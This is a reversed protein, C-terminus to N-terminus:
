EVAAADSQSDVRSEVLADVRSLLEENDSHKEIMLSLDSLDHLMMQEAQDRAAPDSLATTLDLVVDEVELSELEIAIEFARERGVGSWVEDRLADIAKGANDLIEIGHQLEPEKEAQELLVGLLALAGVHAAEHRAMSMWFANLESGAEFGTALKTYIAM